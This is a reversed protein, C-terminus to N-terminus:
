LSVYLAQCGALRCVTLIPIASITSQVLTARGALNLLKNKWSALKSQINEVVHKFHNRSSRETFLPVGLYRGLNSSVKRNQTSQIIGRRERSVNPSLFVKEKQLNVSMGSCRCFDMMTDKVVRAQSLSAEAFLLVDDAFLLHSLGIISSIKKGTKKAM